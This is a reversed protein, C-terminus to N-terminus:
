QQTDTAEERAINDLCHRRAEKGSTFGPSTEKTSEYSPGIWHYLGDSQLKGVEYEDPLQQHGSFTIVDFGYHESLSRIRAMREPSVRYGPM